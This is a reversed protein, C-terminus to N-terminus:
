LRPSFRSKASVLASADRARPSMEKTSSSMSSHKLSKWIRRSWLLGANRSSPVATRFAWTLASRELAPLLNLCSWLVCQLFVLPGDSLEYFQVPVQGNHLNPSAMRTLEPFSQLLYRPRARAIQQLSRKGLKRLPTPVM